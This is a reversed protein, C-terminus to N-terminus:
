SVLLILGGTSKLAYDEAVQGGASHGAMFIRENRGAGSWLLRQCCTRPSLHLPAEWILHARCWTHTSVQSRGNCMRTTWRSYHLVHHTLCRKVHHGNHEIRVWYHGLLMGSPLDNSLWGRQTAEQRVSGMKQAVSEEAIRAFEKPQQMMQSGQLVAQWDVQMVVGALRVRDGICAQLM